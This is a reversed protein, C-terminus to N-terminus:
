GNNGRCKDQAQFVKLVCWEVYKNRTLGVKESEKTIRNYISDEFSTNVSKKPKNIYTM